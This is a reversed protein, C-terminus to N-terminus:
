EYYDDYVTIKLCYVGGNDDKLTNVILANGFEGILAVFDELTSIEREELKNSTSAWDIMAKM